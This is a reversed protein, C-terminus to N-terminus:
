LDELLHTPHEAFSNRMRDYRRSTAPSSHRSADQAAQLSAGRDLISMVFTARLRHPHLSGLADVDLGADAALEAILGWIAQQTYPILPASSQRRRQDRRRFLFGHRRAELHAMVAKETSANLPIRYRKGGKGTIMLSHGGPEVELDAAQARAIESVRLGNSAMLRVIAETEAGRATAAAILARTQQETLGRGRPEASVRPGKVRVAPSGDIVRQDVLYAYFSRVTTLRRAVTAPAFRPQGHVAPEGDADVLECLWNRYRDLDARKVAVPALSRGSLWRLFVALDTRYSSRTRASTRRLRGDDTFRLSAWALAINLDRQRSEFVEPEQGYRAPAMAIKVFNLAANGSKTERQSLTLADYLRDRKNKVVYTGTGASRPTPDRIKAAALLEVIQKTTLGANTDGLVDCVQRLVADDLPPEAV